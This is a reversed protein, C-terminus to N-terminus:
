IDKHAETIELTEMSNRDDLKSGKGVLTIRNRM